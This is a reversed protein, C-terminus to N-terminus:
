DQGSRVARVYGSGSRSGYGVGGSSFNVCWASNTDYAGATSSWYASSMTNPFYKRNIAPNCTGRDVLMSLEKVFPLRWDSFGGFKEANLSTIFKGIADHWKYTIDKDHISNDDTKVEWILGTANDRVMSWSTASDDLEKGKDDLKTYSPPNITYDSDEGFAETYPINQGTDPIPRTVTAAFAAAGGHGLIVGFSVIGAMTWISVSTVM